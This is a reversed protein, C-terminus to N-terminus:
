RKFWSKFIEWSLFGDSKEGVEHLIWGRALTKAISAWDGLAVMRFFFCFFNLFGLGKKGRGMSEWWFFPNGRKGWIRVQHCPFGDLGLTHTNMSVQPPNAGFKPKKNSVFGLIKQWIHKKWPHHVITSDTFLWWVVCVFGLYPIPKWICVPFHVNQVGFWKTQNLYNEKEFLHSRPELTLKGPTIEGFPEKVRGYAM